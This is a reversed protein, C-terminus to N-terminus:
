DSALFRLILDGVLDPVSTTLEHDTGPVIALQAGPISRFQLVLDDLTVFDREAGVILTRSAIRGLDAPTIHPETLFLTRMREFFAPSRDPWVSGTAFQASAAAFEAATSAALGAAIDPQMAGPNTNGSIPILRNVRQPHDIALLLAIIAGDSHGAIHARELDIADMFAVTDEAMRAYTIPEDVEPTRGHGRRDPLIVTGHLALRAALGAYDGGSVMGGHLFLVPADGEGLVEFFTHVGNADVYGTM